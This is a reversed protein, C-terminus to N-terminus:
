AQERDFLRECGQFRRQLHSINTLLLCDKAGNPIQKIEGIRRGTGRILVAFDTNKWSVHAAPFKLFLTGGWAEAETAAVHWKRLTKNSPCTSSEHSFVVLVGPHKVAEVFEAIGCNCDYVVKHTDDGDLM